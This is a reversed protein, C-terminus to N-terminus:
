RSVGGMGFSKLSDGRAKVSDGMGFPNLMAAAAAAAAALSEEEAAKRMAAAALLSSSEAAKRKDRDEKITERDRRLNAVREARRRAREKAAATATATRMEAEKAAVEDTVATDDDGTAGLDERAAAGALFAEAAAVVAAAAATEAQGARTYGREATGFEAPNARAGGAVRGGEVEGAAAAAVSAAATPSDIASAEGVELPEPLAKFSVAVDTFAAEGETDLAQGIIRKLKSNVRLTSLLAAVTEHTLEDEPLASRSYGRTHTDEGDTPVLQEL